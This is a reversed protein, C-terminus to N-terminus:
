RRVVFRVVPGDETHVSGGDFEQGPFDAELCARWMFAIDSALDNIRSEDDPTAPTVVQWLMFQNLVAEIATLDGDTTRYWEAFNDPEYAREWIVCGSVEVFRPRFCKSLAIWDALGLRHRAFDVYDLGGGLDQSWADIDPHM